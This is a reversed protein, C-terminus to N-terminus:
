CDEFRFVKHNCYSIPIVIHGIEGTEDNEYIITTESNQKFSFMGLNRPYKHVVKLITGNCPMKISMTYKGYEKEAGSIIRRPGAGAIVNMQTLFTARMASRSASSCAAHPELITSAGMFRPELGLYDNDQM